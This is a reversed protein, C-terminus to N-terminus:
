VTTEKGVRYTDIVIRDSDGCDIFYDAGSRKFERLFSQSPNLITAKWLTFGTARFVAKGTLRIGDCRVGVAVEGDLCLCYRDGKTMRIIM